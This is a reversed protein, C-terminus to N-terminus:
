STKVPIRKAQAQPQKELTIHLVGNKYQADVKDPDVSSPLQFSRQFSGFQREVYHYDRREKQREQKKEGRVTLMGGAVSIEVERPDIGPLEMSIKVEKDTEAVDTRPMAIEEMAGWPEGLFRNFLNDIESRFRTMGTEPRALSGAERRTRRPVLNM